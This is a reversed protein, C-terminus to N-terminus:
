KSAFPSYEPLVVAQGVWLEGNGKELMIPAGYLRYGDNLTDSVRQCFAADDLGTLFKYAKKATDTM